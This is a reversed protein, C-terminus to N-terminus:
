SPIKGQKIQSNTRALNARTVVSKAVMALGDLRNAVTQLVKQTAADQKRGPKILEKQFFELLTQQLCEGSQIISAYDSTATVLTDCYKKWPALDGSALYDLCLQVPTHFTQALTEAPVKAYQPEMKAKLRQAVALAIENHQTLATNVVTAYM